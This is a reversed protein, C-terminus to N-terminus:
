GIKTAELLTSKCELFFCSLSAFLLLFLGKKVYFLICLADNKSHCEWLWRWMYVCPGVTWLWAIQAIKISLLSSSWVIELWLRSFTLVGTISYLSWKREAACCRFRRMKFHGLSNIVNIVARFTASWTQLHLSRWPIRSLTPLYYWQTM